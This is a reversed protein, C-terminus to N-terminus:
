AVTLDVVVARHDSGVIPRVEVAEPELGRAFVHDIRLMTPWGPRWGWTNETRAKAGAVVDTLRGSLHKYAPWAPSANFDGAVVVPGSPVGDLWEDIASLQDTRARVSRWFPWVIPNALHAGAVRWVGAGTDIAASTGPRVPMEISGFEADFSTAIGRGVFDDSPHLSHHAFRSEILPVLNHGLEQVVLVEPQVEDLLSAFASPDARGMLVNSTM